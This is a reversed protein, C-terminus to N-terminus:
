FNDENNATKIENDDNALSDRKRGSQCNRAAELQPPGCWGLSLPAIIYM